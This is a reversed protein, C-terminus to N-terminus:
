SSLYHLKSELKTVDIYGDSQVLIISFMHIELHLLCPLILIVGSMDAFRRLTAEEFALQLLQIFRTDVNDDRSRHAFKM